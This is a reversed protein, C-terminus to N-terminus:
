RTGDSSRVFRRIGTVADGRQTAGYRKGIVGSRPWRINVGSKLSALPKAKANDDEALGRSLPFQLIQGSRM